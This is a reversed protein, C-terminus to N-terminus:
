DFLDQITFNEPLARKPVAAPKFSVKRFAQWAANTTVSPGAETLRLSWARLVRTLEDANLPQSVNGAIEVRFGGAAFDYECSFKMM